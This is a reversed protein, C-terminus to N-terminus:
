LPTPIQSITVLSINHRGLGLVGELRALIPPADGSSGLQEVAIALESAAQHAAACGVDVASIGLVASLAPWTTFSARSFKTAVPDAAPPSIL